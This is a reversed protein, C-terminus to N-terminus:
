LVRRSAWGIITCLYIHLNMFSEIPWWELLENDISSRIYANELTAYSLDNEAAILLGMFPTGIGSGLQRVNFYVSIPAVYDFSMAIIASLVLTLLVVLCDQTRM